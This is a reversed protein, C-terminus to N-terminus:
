NRRKPSMLGKALKRISKMVLERAEKVTVDPYRGLNLSKEKGAIRYKMYWSKKGTPQIVLHLGKGLDDFIKYRLSKAKLSKVKYETLTIAM